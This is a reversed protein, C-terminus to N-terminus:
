RASVVALRRVNERGPTAVYVSRRPAAVTIVNAGESPAAAARPGSAPPVTLDVWRRKGARPWVARRWGPDFGGGRHGRSIM